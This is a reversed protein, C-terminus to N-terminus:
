DDPYMDNLCSFAEEATSVRFADGEQFILKPLGIPPPMGDVPPYYPSYVKKGEWEGEYGVCPYGCEIAIEKVRDPIM